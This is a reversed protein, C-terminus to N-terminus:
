SELDPAAPLDSETGVFHNFYNTMITRVTDAFTDLLQQESWGADVARQWTADAVFGKHEAAERAVRLLADLAPDFGVEGRRIAKTQEEDFGQSKAALTYAAQCYDCENVAAVTLHVAERTAPSLSSYDAITGEAATFANLVAPSNAM